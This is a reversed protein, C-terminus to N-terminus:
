LSSLRLRRFRAGVARRSFLGIEGPAALGPERARLAVTENIALEFRDGQAILRLRLWESEPYGRTADIGGAEFPSASGGAWRGLLRFGGPNDMLFFGFSAADRFRFVLGLGGPGDSRMEAQILVDALAGGAVAGRLVLYAGQKDATATDTGGALSSTQRIEREAADWHWAGPGGTGAGDIATFDAMPDTLFESAYLSRGRPTLEATTVDRALGGIVGEGAQPLPRHEFAVEFRLDRGAPADLGDSATLTRDEGERRRALRLVGRSRLLAPDAGILDLVVRQEAALLAAPSPARVRVVAEAELRRAHIEATLEPHLGVLGGIGVMSSRTASIHVEHPLAPDAPPSLLGEIEDALAAIAESVSSIM